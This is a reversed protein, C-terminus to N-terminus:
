YVIKKEHLLSLKLWLLKVFCLRSFNLLLKLLIVKKGFYNNM